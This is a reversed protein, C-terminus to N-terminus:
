AHIHLREGNGHASAWNSGVPCLYYYTSRCRTATEDEEVRRPISLVGTEIGAAPKKKMLVIGVVADVGLERSARQQERM